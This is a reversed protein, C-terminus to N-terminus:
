KSYFLLVWFAHKRSIESRTHLDQQVCMIGEGGVTLLTEITFKFFGVTILYCDFTFM